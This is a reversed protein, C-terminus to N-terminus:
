KSEHILKSLREGINKKTIIYIPISIPNLETTRLMIHYEIYAMNELEEYNNKVFLIALGGLIWLGLGFLIPITDFGGFMASMAGFIFLFGSAILINTPGNNNELSTGVEITQIHNYALEGFHGPGVSYILRSDTAGFWASYKDDGQLLTGDWNLRLTEGSALFSSEISEPVIQHDAM